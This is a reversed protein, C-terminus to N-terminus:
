KSHNYIPFIHYIAVKGTIKAKSIYAVPTLKAITKPIVAM